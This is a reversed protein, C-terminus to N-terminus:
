LSSVIAFTLAIALLGVLATLGAFTSMFSSTTRDPQILRAAADCVAKLGAIKMEHHSWRHESAWHFKTSM